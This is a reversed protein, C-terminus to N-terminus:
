ATTWGVSFGGANLNGGGAIDGVVSCVFKHCGSAGQECRPRSNKETRNSHKAVDSRLLVFIVGVVASAWGVQGFFDVALKPCVGKKIGDGLPKSRDSLLARGQRVRSLSPSM